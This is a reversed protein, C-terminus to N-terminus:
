SPGRTCKGRSRASRYGSLFEISHGMNSHEIVLLCSLAMTTDHSSRRDGRIVGAGGHNGVPSLRHELILMEDVHFSM